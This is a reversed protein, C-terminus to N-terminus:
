MSINVVHDLLDGEIHHEQGDIQCRTRGDIKASEGLFRSKPEEISRADSCAQAYTKQCDAQITNASHERMEKELQAFAAELEPIPSHASVRSDDSFSAIFDRRNQEPLGQQTRLAHLRKEIAAASQERSTGPLNVCKLCFLVSSLTLMSLKADLAEVELRSALAPVPKMTANEALQHILEERQLATQTNTDRCRTDFAKDVLAENVDQVHETLIPELSRFPVMLESPVVLGDDDMAEKDNLQKQLKKMEMMALDRQKKEMALAELTFISASVSQTAHQADFTKQLKAIYFNQAEELKWLESLQAKTEARIYNMAERVDMILNEAVRKTEGDATAFDPRHKRTTPKDVIQQMSAKLEEEHGRSRMELQRVKPKMEATVSELADLRADVSKKFEDLTHMMTASHQDMMAVVWTKDIREVMTALGLAPTASVQQLITPSPSLMPEVTGTEVVSGPRLGYSPRPPSDAPLLPGESGEVHDDGKAFLGVM